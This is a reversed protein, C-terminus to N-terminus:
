SLLEKLPKSKGSKVERLSKKLDELLILSKKDKQSLHESKKQIKIFPLSKIKEYFEKGEKTQDNIVIHIM